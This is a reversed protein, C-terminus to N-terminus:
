ELKKYIDRKDHKILVKTFKELQSKLEKVKEVAPEKDKLCNGHNEFGIWVREPNIEQIWQVLIDLDFDIIPEITVSKRIKSHMYKLGTYRKETEPAKSIDRTCRNTEITTGVIVNDPIKFDWLCEPNKTQLLFTKDPRTKIADLILAKETQGCFAIDGNGCAFILDASPFKSLREYHFHPKYNYCDM